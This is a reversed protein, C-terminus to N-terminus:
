FSSHSDSTTTPRNIQTYSAAAGTAAAAALASGSGSSSPCSNKSSCSALSQCRASRCAPTATTGSSPKRNEAVSFVRVTDMVQVLTDYAIEQELLITADTKDPYKTKVLKLYDQLTMDSRFNSAILPLDRQSIPRFTLM